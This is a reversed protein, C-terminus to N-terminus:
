LRFERRRGLGAQLRLAQELQAPEADPLSSTRCIVAAAPLVGMVETANHEALWAEIPDPDDTEFRRAAVVRPRPTATAALGCVVGAVRHLVAVTPEATQVPTARSM